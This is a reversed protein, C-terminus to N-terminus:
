LRFRAVSTVLPRTWFAAAPPVGGLRRDAVEVDALAVLQGAVNAGDFDIGFAGWVHGPSEMGVCRPVPGGGLDVLLQDGAAEGGQRRRAMWRLRQRERRYMPHQGVGVVLAIHRVLADGVGPRVRRDDRDLDPVADL